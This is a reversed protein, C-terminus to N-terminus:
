RVLRSLLLADHMLVQRAVARRDSSIVNLQRWSVQAVGGRSWDNCLLKRCQERQRTLRDAPCRHFQLVPYQLVPSGLRHRKQDFFWCNVPLWLILRVKPCDYTAKYINWNPDLQLGLLWDASNLLLYYGFGHLVVFVYFVHSLRRHSRCSVSKARNSNLLMRLCYFRVRLCWLLISCTASPTSCCGVSDPFLSLPGNVNYSAIEKQTISNRPWCLFKPSFMLWTLLLLLLSPLRILVFRRQSNDLTLCTIASGDHAEGYEFIEGGTELDWLKIM